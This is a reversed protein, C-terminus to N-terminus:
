HYIIIHCKVVNLPIKLMELFNEIERCSLKIVLVIGNLDIILLFIYSSGTSLTWWNDYVKKKALEGLIWVFIKCM